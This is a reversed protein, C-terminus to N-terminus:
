HRAAASNLIRVRGVPVICNVPNKQIDDDLNKSNKFNLLDLAAQAKAAALDHAFQKKDATQQDALAKTVAVTQEAETYIGHAYWGAYILLISIIGIILLEFQKFWSNATDEIATAATSTVLDTM